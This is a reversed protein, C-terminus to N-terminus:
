LPQLNQDVIVFKLWTMNIGLGVGIPDLILLFCQLTAIIWIKNWSSRMSMRSSPAISRASSEFLHKVYDLTCLIAISDKEVSYKYKLMLASLEDQANFLQAVGARYSCSRCITNQM